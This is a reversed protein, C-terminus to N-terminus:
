VRAFGVTSFAVAPSPWCGQELGGSQVTKPLAKAAGQGLLPVLGSKVLKDGRNITEERSWHQWSDAAHSILGMLPSLTFLRHLSLLPLELLSCTSFSLLGLVNIGRQSTLLGQRGSFLYWFRPSEM